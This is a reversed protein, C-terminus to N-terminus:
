PMFGKAILAVSTFPFLSGSAWTKHVCSCSIPLTHLLSHMRNNCLLAVATPRYRHASVRDTKTPQPDVVSRLFRGHQDAGAAAAAAPVEPELPVTLAQRRALLDGRDLLTGEAMTFALIFVAAWAWPVFVRHRAVRRNSKSNCLPQCNCSCLRAGEHQKLMESM